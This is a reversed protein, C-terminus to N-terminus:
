NKKYKYKERTIIITKFSQNMAKKINKEYENYTKPKNNSYAKELIRNFNAWGDADKLNLMKQKTPKTTTPYEAEVIITNHDTEEKGKLKLTGIEDVYVLKTAEAMEKTMIIYDIISKETKEKRKRVRTWSHQNEKLSVPITNTDEMLKELLKGNRSQEQQIKPKKVELKANFDEMLIVQGM